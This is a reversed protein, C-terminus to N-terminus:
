GVDRCYSYFHKCTPLLRTTCHNYHHNKSAPPCCARPATATTIIRAQLHAAPAHHLPQLSSEQECTPLLRTTCHDAMKIITSPIKVFNPAMKTEMGSGTMPAENKM